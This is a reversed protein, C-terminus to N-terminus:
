EKREVKRKGKQGGEKIGQVSFCGKRIYLYICEEKRRKNRGKRGGKFDRAKKGGEKIMDRKGEIGFFGEM